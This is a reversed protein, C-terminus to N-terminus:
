EVNTDKIDLESSLRIATKIIEEAMQATTATGHLDYTVIKKARIVDLVAKKILVSERLHGYQSLLLSFTLFMASPNATNSKMHLGSGHVPEFYSHKTGINASPALGLGGMVGAGVDSLIDGFMNETVIVGFKEPKTVLHMGVADINAIEALISPYQASIFEFISRSMASSRRLVNPKDAYTVKKFRYKMAYEFAFRFIRELGSQSQLRLTCNIPAKLKTHWEASNSLIPKLQDPLHDFDFGAYLGETNERVICFNFKQDAKVSFCPRVNAFVDLRQRLQIIPSIYLSESNKQKSRAAIAEREPLSTTAGVLTVDKSFILDWTQPPIPNGYRKWCEWGIEGEEITVPLNLAGIVALVAQMVDRGIGDGPLVAISINKKNNRM